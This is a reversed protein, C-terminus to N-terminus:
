TKDVWSLVATQEVRKGDRFLWRFHEGDEGVFRLWSGELVFPALADFLRWEEGMKDQGYMVEVINKNADTRVEYGWAKIADELRRWKEPEALNMWMWSRGPEPGKGLAKVAKFAAKRHASLITFSSDILSAYGM